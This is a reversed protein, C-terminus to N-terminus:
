SWRWTLILHPSFLLTCHMQAPLYTLHESARQCPQDCGKNWCSIDTQNKCWCTWNRNM